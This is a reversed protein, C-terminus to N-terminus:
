RTKHPFRYINIIFCIIRMTRKLLVSQFVLQLVNQFLELNLCGINFPILFNHQLIFLGQCLSLCFIPWAVWFMKLHYYVQTISPVYVGSIISLAWIGITQSNTFSGVNVRDDLKPKLKVHIKLPLVYVFPL